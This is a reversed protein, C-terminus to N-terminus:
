CIWLRVGWLVVAVAACFVCAWGPHIWIKDDFYQRLMELSPLRMVSPRWDFQPVSIKNHKRIFWGITVCSGYCTCLIVFPLSVGLRRVTVFSVVLFFLAWCVLSVFACTYNKVKVWEKEGKCCLWLYAGQVLGLLSFILLSKYLAASEIHARPVLWMGGSGVCFLVFATARVLVKVPLAKRCWVAHGHCVFVGAFVLMGAFFMGFGCDPDKSMHLAVANMLFLTKLSPASDTCLAGIFMLPLLMWPVGVHVFESAAFFAMLAFAVYHVPNSLARLASLWVWFSLLKGAYFLHFFKAPLDERLAADKSILAFFVVGGVISRVARKGDFPQVALLACVAVVKGFCVFHESLFFQAGSFAIGLFGSFFLLVVCSVLLAMHVTFFFLAGIVMAAYFIMPPFPFAVMGGLMVAFVSFFAKWGFTLVSSTM